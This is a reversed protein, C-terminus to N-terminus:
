AVREQQDKLIMDKIEFWDDVVPLNKPNEMSAIKVEVSRMIISSHGAEHGEYAHDARDDVWWTPAFRKLIEGKGTSWKSFHMDEFVGPFHRELNDMRNQYSTKLCQKDYETDCATIAIFRWGDRRLDNLVSLACDKAELSKFYDSMCFNAVVEMHRGTSHVESFFSDLCGTHNHNDKIYPSFSSAFDLVVGDIDTLIIKETNKKNM